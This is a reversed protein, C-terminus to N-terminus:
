RGEFLAALFLRKRDERSELMMEPESYDLTDV